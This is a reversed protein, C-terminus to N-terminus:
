PTATLQVRFNEARANITETWIDAKITLSLGAVDPYTQTWASSKGDNLLNLTRPKGEAYQNTETLLATYHPQAGDFYVLNGIVLYANLETDGDWLQYIVAGFSGDLGKSEMGWVRGHGPQLGDTPEKFNGQWRYNGVHQLTYKTENMLEIVVATSPQHFGDWVLKGLAAMQDLAKNIDGSLEIQWNSEKSM